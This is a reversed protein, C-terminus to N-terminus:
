SANVLLGHSFFLVPRLSFRFSFSLIDRVTAAAETAGMKFFPADFTSVDQDIFYGHRTNICDKRDPNPHYFTDPNFRDAPFESRGSRGNSMMDWFDSPSAVGGPLRCSMGIIAIPTPAERAPKSASHGNSAHGNTTSGNTFSGNTASGNAASGNVNSATM